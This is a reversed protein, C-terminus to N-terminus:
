RSSGTRRPVIGLGEEIEPLHESVETAASPQILGKGPLEAHHPGM